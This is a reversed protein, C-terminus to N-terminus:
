RLRMTKEHFKLTFGGEIWGQGTRGIARGGQAIPPDIAGSRLTFPLTGTLRALRVDEGEPLVFDFLKLDIKTRRNASTSGTAIAQVLYFLTEHEDTIKLEIGPEYARVAYQPRNLTRVYGPDGNQYTAVPTYQDPAVLLKLCHIGSFIEFDRDRGGFDTRLQTPCEILIRQVPIQTTQCIM